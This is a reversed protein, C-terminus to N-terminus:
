RARAEDDGWIKQRLHELLDKSLETSGSRGEEGCSSGRGEGVRSAATDLGALATHAVLNPQTDAALTRDNALSSLRLLM